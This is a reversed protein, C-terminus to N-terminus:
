LLTASEVAELHRWARCQQIAGAKSLGKTTATPAHNSAAQLVSLRQKRGATFPRADAEAPAKIPWATGM